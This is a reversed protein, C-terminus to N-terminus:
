DIKHNGEGEREEGRREEQLCDTIIGGGSGEGGVEDGAGAAEKGGPINGERERERERQVKVMVKKGRERDRDRDRDRERNREIQLFQDM